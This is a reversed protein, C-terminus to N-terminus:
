ISSIRHQWILLDAEPSSILGASILSITPRPIAQREPGNSHCLERAEELASSDFLAKPIPYGFIDYMSKMLEVIELIMTFTHWELPGDAFRSPDMKVVHEYLDSAQSILFDLRRVSENTFDEPSKLAMPALSTEVMFNPFYSIGSFPLASDAGIFSRWNHLTQLVGWESVIEEVTQLRIDLHSNQHEYLCNSISRFLCNGDEETHIRLM